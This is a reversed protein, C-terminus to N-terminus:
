MDYQQGELEEILRWQKRLRKLEKECYAMSQLVEGKDFDNFRYKGIKYYGNFGCEATFKDICHEWRDDEATWFPEHFGRNICMDCTCISTIKGRVGETTIVEDGVHFEYDKINM